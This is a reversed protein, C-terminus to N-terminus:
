KDNAGVGDYKKKVTFVGLLLASSTLGIISLILPIGTGIQAMVGTFLSTLGFCIAMISGTVGMVWGQEDNSVLNSFIALLTSYAVSLSAGIVFVMFWDLTPSVALLTILIALATVLLGAVVVWNMDFKKTCIDVLVGCGLSFGMGMVALFLSTQMTTYHHVQTLYLSIFSFYNSWGFIM